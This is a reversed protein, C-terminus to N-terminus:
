ENWFEQQAKAQAVFMDLGSRYQCGYRSACEIGPSDQSYNLDIVLKVPWDKPPFVGKKDFHGRGVAWVLVEPHDIEDGSKLHGTRSSYFASPVGSPNLSSLTGGGGWIVKPSTDYDRILFKFGKADTNTTQWSENRWALTNVASFDSQTFRAVEKKLPSTVAAWRLGLDKLFPLADSVENESMDIRLINSKKDEFFKQHFRPTLSHTVPSGLIAAFSCFQPNFNVVDFLSPQDAASGQSLKLFNYKHWRSSLLRYWSWRGNESMPLFIRRGKDELAWRHGEILESFNKIPLALKLIQNTKPLNQLTEKLSKPNTHLSLIYAEKDWDWELPWDYFNFNKNKNKPSTRYSMLENTSGEKPREDILDDRYEFFGLGMSELWEKKEEFGEGQLTWGWAKLPLDVSKELFLSDFVKEDQHSLQSLGEPLLLEFQSMESYKIERKLFREKPMQLSDSLKPRDLFLSKSSDISRKIWLGKWGPPKDGQFGAGIDVILPKEQNKNSLENFITQEYERFKEEGDSDFIEQISRETKKVIEEDLSYFLFSDHYREKLFNFITSKGVGRHGVLIWSKM